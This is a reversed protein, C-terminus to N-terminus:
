IAVMKALMHGCTGCRETQAPWPEECRPCYIRPAGPAVRPVPETSVSDGEMRDVVEDEPGLVVEDILSDKIAALLKIMHAQNRLHKLAFRVILIIAIFTCIVSFFILAGEEDSISERYRYGYQLLIM